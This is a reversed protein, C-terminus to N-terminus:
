ARVDGAGLAQLVAQLTSADFGASVEIGVGSALRITIPAPVPAALPAGLRSRVELPILTPAQGVPPEWGERRLRQRWATFQKPCVGAARCYVKVKQGSQSWQAVHRQWFRRQEAISQSPSSMDQGKASVVGCLIGPM